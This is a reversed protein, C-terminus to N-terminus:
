LSRNLIWALRVGAHKLRDLEVLQAGSQYSSPLVRSPPLYRYVFGKALAHSENAWDEASGSQWARRDSKSISGVLDLAMDHPNGGETLIEDDWLQRLNMARGDFVIAVRAGGRDGNDAAHLPQHIDSAFSVVFKLAELRDRPTATKDRLVATYQELKVVVCAGGGCDRTADYAIAGLPISVYHWRATARRQEGIEDAWTSVAALSTESDLALLARVQVLTRPELFQEAIEAVIRHTDVSEARAHGSLVCAILAVVMRGFHWHWSNSRPTPVPHNVRMSM